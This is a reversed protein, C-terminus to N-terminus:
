WSQAWTVLFLRTAVGLPPPFGQPWLVRRARQLLLRLRRLLRWDVFLQLPLDLIVEALLVQTEAVARRSRQSAGQPSVYMEGKVVQASFGLSPSAGAHVVASLIMTTISDTDVHGVICSHDSLTQANQAVGPCHARPPASVPRHSWPRSKKRRRSIDGSPGPGGTLRDNITDKNAPQGSTASAWERKLAVRQESKGSGTVSQVLASSLLELATSEM